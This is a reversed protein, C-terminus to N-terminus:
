ISFTANNIFYLVSEQGSLAMFSSMYADNLARLALEFESRVKIAM